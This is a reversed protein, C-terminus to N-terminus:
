EHDDRGADSLKLIWRRVERITNVFVIVLLILTVCTEIAYLEILHLLMPYPIHHM